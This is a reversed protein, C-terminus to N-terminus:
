RPQPRPKMFAAVLFGVIGGLIAGGVAIAIFKDAPSANQEFSLFRVTVVAAEFFAALAASLVGTIVGVLVDDARLWM